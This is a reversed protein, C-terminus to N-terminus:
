VLEKIFHIQPFQAISALGNERLRQLQQGNKLLEVTTQVLDAYPVGRISHNFRDEIHTSPNVEGVVAVANSLLYFVRVVEFIQSAYFHHNLVLKSKEIWKDREYGYVGHLVKTRVGHQQLEELVMSRRQNLSGYFLVDVEPNKDLTLRQLQHQYGINFKKVKKIGFKKLYEVNRDSYDWLEFGSSFWKIIGKNWSSNVSSLQETNLIITNKPIDKIYMPDFLHIGIIINIASPEVHNKRLQVSHGLERLSFYLLDGLEYFAGSHIYGEPQLICINFHKM